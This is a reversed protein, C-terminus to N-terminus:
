PQLIEESNGNISIVVEKVTPFQKLTETIQWRIMGVRCSGGVGEQLTQDFDVRVKGAASIAVSQIEVGPNISTMYGSAKEAETPGKM